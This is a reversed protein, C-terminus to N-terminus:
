EPAVGDRAPLSRQDPTANLHASAQAAEAAQHEALERAEAARRAKRRMPTALLYMVLALPAIGYLLLTIVAGLVTGNPATAEALSMMVAVYMWAIAVIWM